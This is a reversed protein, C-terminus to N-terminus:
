GRRATFLGREPTDHLASFAVDFGAAELTEGLLERSYARDGVRAAPALLAMEDPLVTHYEGVILEVDGLRTATLLIPFEAGEADLKLLRVRGLEEIVADLGITPVAHSRPGNTVGPLERAQEGRALQVAGADAASAFMVAGGGTNRGDVNPVFLASGAAVDSRWVAAHRVSARPESRLNVSCLAYNQHNAEYGVVRAGRGAALLAFSGIHCGVDLVLDGEAFRQPADAYDSDVSHPIWEDYTGKRVFV